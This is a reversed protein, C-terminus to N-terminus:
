DDSAIELHAQVEAAHDTPAVTRRAADYDVVGAEDMKPLHVHVLAAEIDDADGGSRDAVPQRAEWATLETTLESVSVPEDVRRLHQLAVRRRPDSLVDFLADRRDPGPGSGQTERPREDM